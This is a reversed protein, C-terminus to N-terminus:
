VKEIIVHSDIITDIRAIEIIKIWVRIDDWKVFLFNKLLFAFITSIIIKTKLSRNFLQWFFLSLKRRVTQANTENIIIVQIEPLINDDITFKFYQSM